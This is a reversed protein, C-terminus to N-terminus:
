LQFLKVLVFSTVKINLKTESKITKKAMPPNKQKEKKMMLSAITTKKRRKRKLQIPEEDESSFVDPQFIESLINKRTRESREKKVKIKKKAEEVDKFCFM